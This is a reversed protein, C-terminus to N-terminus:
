RMGMKKTTSTIGGEKEDGDKKDGDIEDGDKENDINDGGEKDDGDKENDINDWVDEDTDADEAEKKKEDDINDGVVAVDRDEGISDEVDKESDKEGKDNNEKQETFLISSHQIPPTSPLFEENEEM